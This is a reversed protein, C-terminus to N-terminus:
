LKQALIFFNDRNNPGGLIKFEQVKFTKILKKIERKSFFHYFRNYKKKESSIKWSVYQDGFEELGEM